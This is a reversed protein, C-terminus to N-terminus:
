RQQWVAAHHARGAPGDSFTSHPQWMRHHRVPNAARVDVGQCCCCCGLVSDSGAALTQLDEPVEPLLVQLHVPLHTVCHLHHPVYSLCPAQAFLLEYRAAYISSTLCQGNAVSQSCSVVLLSAHKPLNPWSCITSMMSGNFLSEQITRFLRGTNWAHPRALLHKLWAAAVCVPRAGCWHLARV